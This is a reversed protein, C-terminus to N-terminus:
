IEDLEEGISQARSAIDHDLTENADLKELWYRARKVKGQKKYNMCSLLQAEIKTEKRRLCKQLTKRANDHLECAILARALYINLRINDPALEVSKQCLSLAIDDGEKQLLYCLGLLGMSEADFENYQLARQLWTIAEDYDKLGYYALGLYPLARERTRNDSSSHYWTMLIDVARQFRGKSACLRGLRFQLDTELDDDQGEQHLDFAREFYDLAETTRGTLEAELGSNYLAMFNKADLTLVKEFCKRAERHRDMDGYAVGLSNLLNINEEDCSIGRKYEKVASTLDGEAYYIDGSINLSVGDFVACGNPGFFAAHNIAKRCNFVTASKGFSLHPYCAIGRQVDGVKLEALLKTCLDNANTPKKNALFLYIDEDELVLYEPPVGAKVAQIDDHDHPRLEVITFSDIDKWRRRFKALLAKSPKKLPHKEPHALHSYDCLSFPGRKRAAHLAFVAQDLSVMHDTTNNEHLSLGGCRLSIHIKRFGDRRLWSFVKRGIGRCSSREIDAFLLAFVHHGLYFLSSTNGLFSQLSRVAKAKHM